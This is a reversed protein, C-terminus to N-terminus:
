KKPVIEVVNAIQNIKGLAEQFTHSHILFRRLTGALVDAAQVDFHEKSDCYKVNVVLNGSIIPSFFYGNHYMGQSLEVQISNQLDYIGDTGRNENDININLCLDDDPSIVKLKMLEKLTAKVVMKVSYDLFRRKTKKNKLNLHTIHNKDAIAVFCYEKKIMNILMRRDNPRLIFSKVEPCDHDCFAKDKPCYKCKIGSIRSKYKAIFGSRACNDLFLLGAYVSYAYQDDIKGSDDIAYYIDIYKM